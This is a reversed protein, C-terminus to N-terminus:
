IKKWDSLLDDQMTKLLTDEMEYTDWSVTCNSHLTMIEFGNGITSPYEKAAYILSLLALNKLASVNVKQWVHQALFRAYLNAGTCVREYVRLVSTDQHNRDILAVYEPIDRRIVIVQDRDSQGPIGRAIGCIDDDWSDGSLSCNGYLTIERAITEAQPGGAFACIVLEDDRKKFKSGTMFQWETIDTPAMRTQPRLSRHAIRRDSGVILGDTGILALQFTMKDEIAPESPLILSDVTAM